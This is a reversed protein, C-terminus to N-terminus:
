FPWRRHEVSLRASSNLQHRDVLISGHSTGSRYGRGM